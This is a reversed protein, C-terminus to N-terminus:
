GLLWLGLGIWCAGCFGVAIAMGAVVDRRRKGAFIGTELPICGTGPKRTRSPAGKLPVATRFSHTEHFM